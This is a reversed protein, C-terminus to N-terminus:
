ISSKYSWFSGRHVKRPHAEMAGSLAEVAGLHDDMAKSYSALAGSHTKVTHMWPELILKWCDLTLDLAGPHTVVAL